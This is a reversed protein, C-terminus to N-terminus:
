RRDWSQGFRRLAAAGRPPPACVPAVIAPCPSRRLAGCAHLLRDMEEREAEARSTCRACGPPTLANVILEGTPVGLRGLAELLRVTERRPLDAARTVAIFRTQAPDALARQLVGLRRSLALLDEALRGLGVLQQYKLTMRMLAQVWERAVQPMELLRLAHGTPATDVVLLPGAPLADMVALMAFVEDLGPPALDILDELIARDYVPDLRSGARLGEFLDDVAARYRERERAFAAGADIEQVQLNRPGGRVPAPMETVKMELVDSIRRAPDTSLLLVPRRPRAHALALAAAAACTSKGVGGKGGFFLLRLAGWATPVGSARPAAAARTLARAGGGRAVPSSSSAGSSLLRRGLPRLSSLGRPEDELAPLLRLTRRGALPRLARIAEAELRRRASCLACPGGPSPTLRNVVVDAVPIHAAALAELGDRTEAVSLLEPLSVWRFRTSSEDRLAAELAEGQELLEEILADAMDRAAAGGLSEAVVRHKEQMQDFVTALGRLARPMALLRLTHGTPATDVVVEDYRGSGALRRLELLAILEDVGPLSLDLFAEVDERDFYTGREAILRLTARRRDLWRTLAAPADLEAAHLSGRATRVRRPAGTLEQGLADGLSHAPDTSIVLVRRGAEARCLAYAAACTTKGVGGKGGFFTLAAARAM